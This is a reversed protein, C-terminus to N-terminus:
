LHDEPRESVSPFVPARKEVVADVGEVVDAGFMGLMELALSADFLPGAQRLWNNLAKKTWRIADQSGNALKDAVAMAQDMLQERPVAKSVLGIREAERGDLFDATLLYYKARAMGCLLPWLMVSHDGAAIGIRVHGDTFRVDEAVISIDALLAVTLGAGVAVGNIASIIPKECHVMNYVLDSAQQMTHVVQRYNGHARRQMDIDGGASFARGAGTIVVVRTESDRDVDLWVQGLAEHMAEDAANLKDPRNITVLLVGPQPREFLLGQYRSYDVTM